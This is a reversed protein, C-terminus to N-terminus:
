QGKGADQRRLRYQVDELLKRNVALLDSLFAVLMTQFGMGLLVAALILSQVHGDGEGQFFFFLFRLGIAFGALFVIAGITMFFAFPRYVVFIRVMTSLSRRIYAPISRVLRSPRLDENVRIPVSTIAISRRGAQIISELTYTYESYVNIQLAAERSLARFGSPADPVSTNSIRRVVRSGLKQLLKKIPSFHKITSIPREGVVM